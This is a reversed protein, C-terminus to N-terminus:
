RASGPAMAKVMTQMLAVLKSVQQNNQRMLKVVDDMQKTVRKREKEDMLSIMAAPMLNGGSPIQTAFTWGYSGYLCVIGGDV